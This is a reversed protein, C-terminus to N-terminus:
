KLANMYTLTDKPLLAPHFIKIYDKLVLDARVVGSEFYDNAKGKQRKAINYLKGKKFIDMKSYSPNIALLEKKYQYNSLNVWYKAQKSKAYVEEFSLPVSQDKDLDNFIYNGGADNFYKAAFTKNGPLFWQNGYIENCLVQPKHSIKQAQLKLHDYNQKINLYRESAQKDIGFLKGFIKLYATKELPENELYENLFIVEINNKRLLDYTNEFNPIHNTIIADPKLSIIKELDYKQENGIAHIKKSQILAKVKESYVYEESSIGIIHSELGLELMYGLMSSSLLVVKKLPLKATPIESSLNKTNIIVKNNDEQYYTNKSIIVQEKSFNNAEKKCSILALSSILIFFHTKMKLFLLFNEINAFEFRVRLEIPYLM